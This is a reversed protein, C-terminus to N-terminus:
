INEQVKAWLEVLNLVFTAVTMSTDILPLVADQNKRWWALPGLDDNQAAEELKRRPHNDEISESMLRRLSERGDHDLMGATYLIVLADQWVDEPLRPEPLVVPPATEKISDGWPVDPRLRRGVTVLESVNDRREFHAVLERAKNAKGQAPLDDYDVNLDYCLTRLEEESFRTSLSMRLGIQYRRDPTIEDGPANTAEARWQGILHYLDQALARSLGAPVYDRYKEADTLWGSLDTFPLNVLSWANRGKVTPNVYENDPDPRVREPDAGGREIDEDVWLHYLHHGCYIQTALAALAGMGSRGGTVSVRVTQGAQRARDIYLGMRAAFPGSADRERGRLDEADIYVAKYTVDSVRRFLADLTGAADRVRQHWTGVTIIHDIKIGEELLAFYVGSVAGPSFGLPSILVDQTV